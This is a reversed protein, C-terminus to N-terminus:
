VIVAEVEAGTLTERRFLEDALLNIPRQYAVLLQETRALFERVLQRADRFHINPNTERLGELFERVAQRLESVERSQHLAAIREEAPRPNASVFQAHGLTMGIPKCTVHEIQSGCLLGAICHAAEHVCVRELPGRHRRWVGNGSRSDMRDQLPGAATITAAKEWDATPAILMPNLGGGGRQTPQGGKGSARM